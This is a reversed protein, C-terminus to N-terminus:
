ARHRQKRKEAVKLQLLAREIAAQAEASQIHDKASERAQRARRLAAEVQRQDIEEALQAADTAIKVRNQAVQIFGDFVAMHRSTKGLNLTIEGAKLIAILPLHNALVTIEGETTPLTISQAKGSFVVREPTIIEVEIM